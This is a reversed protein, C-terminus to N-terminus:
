FVTASLTGKWVGVYQAGIQDPSTEARLRKVIDEMLSDTQHNSMSLWDLAARELGERDSIEATFRSGLLEETAGIRYGVAPVGMSLAEALSNPFSEWHTSAMVYLDLNSLWSFVQDPHCAGGFDIYKMMHSKESKITTWLDKHPETGRGAFRIRVPIGKRRLSEGLAVVEMHGKGPAARALIGLTVPELNSLGLRSFKEPNENPPLSLPNWIVNINKLRYGANVRCSIAKKSNAIVGDGFISVGLGALFYMWVKLYGIERPLQSNRISGFLKARPYSIKALIAMADGLYLFGQVIDPSFNRVLRLLKVGELPLRWWAGTHLPINAVNSGGLIVQDGKPKYFTIVLITFESPLAEVLRALSREAGGISLSPVFFIIKM